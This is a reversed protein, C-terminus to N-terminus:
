PTDGARPLERPTPRGAPATCVSGRQGGSHLRSQLGGGLSSSVKSLLTQLGWGHSLAPSWHPSSRPLTRGGAHPGRNEWRLTLRLPAPPAPQGHLILFQINSM